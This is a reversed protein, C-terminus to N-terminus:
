FADVSLTQAAREKEDTTKAYQWLYKSEIEKKTDSGRGKVTELTTVVSDHPLSGLKGKEGLVKIIGAREEASTTTLGYIAKLIDVDRNKFKTEAEEVEKKSAARTNAEIAGLLPALKAVGPMGSTAAGKAAEGLKERLAGGAKNRYKGLGLPRLIAGGVRAASEGAALGGTGGLGGARAAYGAVQAGFKLGAGGAVLGGVGAGAAALAFGSAKTAMAAAKGGIKKTMKLAVVLFAIILSFGLLVEFLIAMVGTGARAAVASFATGGGSIFLAILLLFFLFIPAVFAQNLLEKWWETFKGQTQPLAYAVFALPSLIMLIWLITIRAIFLFAAWFLVYASVLQVIAGFLYLALLMSYSQNFASVWDDFSRTGFLKQPNFGSMIIASISQNQDGVMVKYFELALMNAGDIVVKAFFLSFNVLLAIMLITVLLAQPNKGAGLRLITMIAIYLLAFIFVMNAVDRMITWGTSVFPSGFVNGSSSSVGLSYPVVSDFIFSSAVLLWSSPVYLIYHVAQALVWAVGEAPGSLLLLIGDGIGIAHAVNMGVPSIVAALIILSVLITKVFRNM